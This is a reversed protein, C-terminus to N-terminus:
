KQLYKKRWSNLLFMLVILIQLSFLAADWFLLSTPAKEFGPLVKKLAYFLQPIYFIVFLSVSLFVGIFYFISYLFVVKKESEFIVEDKQSFKFPLQKKILQQASEMLNYCGTINEILYYLDTKMYVCCQYVIRIFTDLVIVKMVGLFVGSDNNFILQSSLAISLIVTDFCIGALYLINRNKSPLKWVSDMETEFVVLFLRHGVGLKTPLNNARMALIHGFEHILVLIITLGVWAPINLVMFNFIFLDKFHPFLTPHSSLLIVNVVLLLAYVFYAVENFFFKGIRPSIWLFGLKEKKNSNTEIKVGNIERILNLELLQEAFDLINVEEDSYKEKLQREIEGLLFGQQILYIADICVENMEYFERSSTDEVIYHKRDKHIELPILSLISRIMINM